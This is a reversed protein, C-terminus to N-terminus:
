KQEVMGTINGDTDRVSARRMGPGVQQAAQVVEAGAGTFTAVAADLDDVQWYAVPGTFGGAHGNPDLGVEDDGVKFGVYYPSDVYPEAGLTQTYFAKAADLDKVPYVVLRASKM